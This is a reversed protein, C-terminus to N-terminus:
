KTKNLDLWKQYETMNTVWSPNELYGTTANLFEPKLPPIITATENLVVQNQATTSVTPNFQAHSCDHWSTCPVFAPIGNGASNYSKLEALIARTNDEVQYDYNTKDQTHMYGSQEMAQIQKEKMIKTTENVTPFPNAAMYQNVFKRDNDIQNQIIASSNHNMSQATLLTHMKSEVQAYDNGGGYSSSTNNVDDAFVPSSISVFLIAM